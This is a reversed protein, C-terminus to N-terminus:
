HQASEAFLLGAAVDPQEFLLGVLRLDAEEVQHEEVTADLSVDLMELQEVVGVQQHGPRTGEGAARYRQGPEVARRHHGVRRDTILGPDLLFKGTAVDARVEHEAGHSVFRHEGHHTGSHPRREQRPEGDQTVIGPRVLCKGDM